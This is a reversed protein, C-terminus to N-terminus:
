KNKSDNINVNNKLEEALKIAELLGEVFLKTEDISVDGISAWRITPEEFINEHFKIFDKGQTVCIDNRKNGLPSIKVIKGFKNEIQIIEMRIKRKM